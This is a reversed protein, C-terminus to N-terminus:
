KVIKRAPVGAVTTQTEVDKTVVAGAGVVAASHIAKGPLITANAGIYSLEEVDCHGLIVSSPAITVFDGINADHMVNAMSNIRVCKGIKVNSSINCGDQIMSGESIIASKSVFSNPSIVTEFCFGNKYYEEFLAKRIKPADPVLMLPIENTHKNNYIFDQDDGLYPYHCNEPKNKDVVGAITYGAKECLEAAESFYGILIIKKM